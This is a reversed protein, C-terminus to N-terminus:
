KSYAMDSWQFGTRVDEIIFEKENKPLQLSALLSLFGARLEEKNIGPIKTWEVEALRYFRLIIGERTACLALLRDPDLRDLKRSYIRWGGKENLEKTGFLDVLYLLNNENLVINAPKLDMGHPLITLNKGVLTRKHLSNQPYNVLKQM